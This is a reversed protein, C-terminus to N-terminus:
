AGGAARLGWIWTGLGLGGRPEVDLITLLVPDWVDWLRLSSDPCAQGRSPHTLLFNGSPRLLGGSPDQVSFPVGAPPPRFHWCCSSHFRLTHGSGLPQVQLRPAAPPTARSRPGFWAPPGQRTPRWTSCGLLAAGPYKNVGTGGLDRKLHTASILRPCCSGCFASSIM